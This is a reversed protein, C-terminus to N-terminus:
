NRKKERKRKRKKRLNQSTLQMVHSLSIVMKPGLQPNPKKKAALKPVHPINGLFDVTPRASKM